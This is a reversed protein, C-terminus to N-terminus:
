PLIDVPNDGDPLTTTVPLTTPVPLGAPDPIPLPPLTPLPAGPDTPIPLSPVTVGGGAGADAGATGGAEATGPLGGGAASGSGDARGALGAAAPDAEPLAMAMQAVSTVYGDVVDVVRMTVIDDVEAPVQFTQPAGAEPGLDLLKGLSVDGTGAQPVAPGDLALPRGDIWVGVALEGAGTTREVSFALHEGDYSVDALALGPASAGVVGWDQPGSTTSAARLYVTGGAEGGALGPGRSWTVVATSGHAERLEVTVPAPATATSATSATPDPLAAPTPIGMAQLYASAADVPDDLGTAWVSAATSADFSPDGPSVATVLEAPQDRTEDGKTRDVLLAGGVAAAVLAAAAVSTFPRSHPRRRPRDLRIVQVPETARLPVVDGERTILDEWAPPNEHVDAAIGHLLDRVRAELDDHHTDDLLNM